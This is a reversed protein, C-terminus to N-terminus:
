DEKKKNEHWCHIIKKFCGWKDSIVEPYNEIAKWVSPHHLDIELDREGNWRLECQHRVLFYIESAAKNEKVLEVRCSECLEGKNNKIVVPEGPPTREAAKHRCYDCSGGEM